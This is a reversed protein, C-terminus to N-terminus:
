RLLWWWGTANVLSHALVGPTLSASRERLWGLLLGLLFLAPMDWVLSHTAAFILATGPVRLRSAHLQFRARLVGRYFLEEMLPTAVLLSIAMLGAEPADHPIFSERLGAAADAPLPWLSRSISTTAMHLGVIALVALAMGGAKFRAVSFPFIERWQDRPTTLLAPLGLVLAACLASWPGAHFGLLPWAQLVLLPLLWSTWPPERVVCAPGANGPASPWPTAWM